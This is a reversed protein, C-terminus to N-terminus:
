WITRRRQVYSRRTQYHSGSRPHSMVVRCFALVMELNSKTALDQALESSDEKYESILPVTVVEYQSQLKDQLFREVERAGKPAFGLRLSPDSTADAGVMTVYALRRIRPRTKPLAYVTPESTAGKVRDANFAYATFEVQSVESRRPVRINNFTVTQKGTAAIVPQGKDTKVLNSKRWQKFQEQRAPGPCDSATIEGTPDPSQGVLQGDRYLRLDYLGSECRVRRNDKLCQGAQSSVDIKVTVLAPNDAQPVVTIKEVKAQVPNLDTLSPQECFNEGKLIRPLLRPEYYDRMFIELPLLKMPDNPMIWNLGYVQELDSTDFRGDLSIVTWDNANSVLTCLEKGTKSDWFRAAGDRSGTLILQDDPSFAVSTIDGAHGGFSLVREGTEISWKSVMNGPEVTLIFKSDHSFAFIDVSYFLDHRKSTTSYSIFEQKLEGTSAEFLERKIRWLGQYKKLAPEERWTPQDPYEHKSFEAYDLGVLEHFRRWRGNVEKSMEEIESLLYKGDPSFMARGIDFKKRGTHLDFTADATIFFNNDPSIALYPLPTGHEQFRELETGTKADLLILAERAAILVYSGDDSLTVNFYSKGKGYEWGGSEGGHGPLSFDSYRWVNKGTAINWLAVVDRSETLVFQSDPTFWADVSQEMHIERPSSHQDDPLFRRIERGSGIDWLRVEAVETSLAFQGNPSIALFDQAYDPEGNPKLLEIQQGTSTDWISDGMMIVRGDRSFAVDFIQRSGESYAQTFQFSSGGGLHDLLEGSAASFLDFTVNGCVEGSNGGCSYLDRGIVIESNNRFALHGIVGPESEETDGIRRIFQGTTTWLTAREDPPRQEKVRKDVYSSPGALVVRGNPSFCAPGGAPLRRVHTGTRLNWLRVSDADDAALPYLSHASTTLALLGDPSIDFDDIPAENNFRRIVRGTSIDWLRMIYSSPTKGRRQDANGDVTLLLRGNPALVASDIPNAADGLVKIVRGTNVDWLRATHDESSTLITKGNPSFAVSTLSATHGNFDRIRDGTAANWLSATYAENDTPSAKETLSYRDGGGILISHNDPSFAVARVVGTGVVFRRIESAAEADWLIATKDDGGSLIYRGDRSVAIANINATHGFQVILQPPRPNPQAQVPTDVAQAHVAM